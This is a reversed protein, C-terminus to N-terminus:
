IQNNRTFWILALANCVAVTAPGTYSLTSCTDNYLKYYVIGFRCTNFLKIIPVNQVLVMSTGEM